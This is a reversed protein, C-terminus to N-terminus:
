SPVLNIKGHKNIKSPTVKLLLIKREPLPTVLKKPFPRHNVHPPRHPGKPWHSLLYLWEQCQPNQKTAQSNLQLMTQGM